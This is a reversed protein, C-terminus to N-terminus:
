SISHWCTGRMRTHYKHSMKLKRDARHLILLMQDKGQFIDPTIMFIGRFKSNNYMEENKRPNAKPKKLHTIGRRSISDSPATMSPTTNEMEETTVAKIANEPPIRESLYPRRRMMTHPVIKNAKPDVSNSADWVMGNSNIKPTMNM